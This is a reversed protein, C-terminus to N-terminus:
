AKTIPYMGVLNKLNRKNVPNASEDPETVMDLTM